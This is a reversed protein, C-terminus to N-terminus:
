HLHRAFTRGRLLDEGDPQEAIFESLTATIDEFMEGFQESSVTPSVGIDSVFLEGDEGTRACSDPVDALGRVSFGWLGPFRAFLLEIPAPLPQRAPVPATATARRRAPNSKTPNSM